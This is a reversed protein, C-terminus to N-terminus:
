ANLKQFMYPRFTLNLNKKTNSINVVNTSDTKKNILDKSSFTIKKLDGVSIFVKLSVSIHLLFNDFDFLDIFYIGLISPRLWAWFPGFDNKVWKPDVDPGM